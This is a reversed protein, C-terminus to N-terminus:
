GTIEERMEPKRCHLENQMGVPLFDPMRRLRFQQHRKQKCTCQYDKYTEYTIGRIQLLKRSTM